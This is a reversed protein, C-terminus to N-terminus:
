IDYQHLYDEDPSKVSKEKMCEKMRRMAEVTNEYTGFATLRFWGAGNKGFGEGPTGVVNIKELIYDFFEWSGMNDPCKLWVYPSNLGGTFSIGLETLTDAMVKANRHYYDIAKRIQKQGEETFVAEAARQVPYSVGNFKSGERRNWLDAIKVEAGTSSKVVLEDPVVTYGCRMGTFGATKSLSCMEIACKKAGEVAYISRPLEKDQIFAEYASDFIIIAENKLAYDVWEKLQEKTYVSGTPNNPSCLYIIDAHVSYDPMAAFGNSEDSDAYIVERGAMMNSDVYVPYAPDTVLITNGDGFIDVINGCDSKAGDNIRIDSAPVDVGFSKYYGSVAERLFDYGAGSDEYGRFTEAKGMEDAAKKMAEVAVPAIPQTVDGIGMRILTKDPNAESFAKIRKAIDIFLYNKKMSLFNENIKVM